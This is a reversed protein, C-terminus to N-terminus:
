SPRKETLESFDAPDLLNNIKMLEIHASQNTRYLGFKYEYSKM